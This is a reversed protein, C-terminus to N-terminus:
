TFIHRPKAHVSPKMQGLYKYDESNPNQKVTWMPGNPFMQHCAKFPNLGIKPEVTCPHVTYCLFSLGKKFSLTWLVSGYNEIAILMAYPPRWLSKKIGGVVAPSVWLFILLAEREFGCCDVAAWHGFRGSMHGQGGPPVAALFAMFKAYNCNAKAAFPWMFLNPLPDPQDPRLSAAKSTQPRGAPRRATKQLRDPRNSLIQRPALFSKVSVPSSRFWPQCM